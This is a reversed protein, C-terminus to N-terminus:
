PFLRACYPTGVAFSAGVIGLLLGIALLQGYQTAYSAFFDAATSACPSRAGATARAHVAVRQRERDSDAEVDDRSAHAFKRARPLPLIDAGRV